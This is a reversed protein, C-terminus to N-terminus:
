SDARRRITVGAAVLVAVAVAQVASGAVGTLDIPVAPNWVVVIAALFPLCWWTRNQLAFVAVVAALIAVVFRIAIYGGSTTFGLGALVATAAIVSPLLAIRGGRASGLRASGRRPQPERAAARREARNSM